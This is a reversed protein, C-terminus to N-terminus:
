LSLIGALPSQRPWFMLSVKKCGAVCGTIAMEEQADSILKLREGFRLSSIDTGWAGWRARVWGGKLLVLQAGTDEANDYVPFWPGNSTEAVEVDGTIFSMAPVYRIENPKFTHSGWGITAAWLVLSILIPMAVHRVRM